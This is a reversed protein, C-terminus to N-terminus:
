NRAPLKTAPTLELAIALIRIVQLTTRIIVAVPLAKAPSQATEAACLM